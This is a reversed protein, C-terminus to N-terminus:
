RRGHPSQVCVHANGRVVLMLTLRCLPVLLKGYQQSVSAILDANSASSIQLIFLLYCLQGERMRSAHSVGVTKLLDRVGLCWGRGGELHWILTRGRGWLALGEEGGWGWIAAGM